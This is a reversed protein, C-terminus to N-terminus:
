SLITIKVPEWAAETQHGDPTHNNKIEGDCGRVVDHVHPFPDVLGNERREAYGIVEYHVGTVVGALGNVKACDTWEARDNM